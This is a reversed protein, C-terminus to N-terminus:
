ITLGPRSQYTTKLGLRYGKWIEDLGPKITPFLFM